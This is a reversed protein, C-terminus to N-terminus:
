FLDQLRQQAIRQASQFEWHQGLRAKLVNLVDPMSRPTSDIMLKLYECVGCKIFKSLSKHVVIWFM